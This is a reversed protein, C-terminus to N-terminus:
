PSHQSSRAIMAVGCLVALIGAWRLSTVPEGLWLRGLLATVAFNLGFAPVVVSVDLGWGELTLMGVFQLTMFVVGVPLQWCHFFAGLGAVVGQPHIAALRDTGIKLFVNGVSLTVISLLYVVLIRFTLSSM